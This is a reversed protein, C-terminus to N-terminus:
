KALRDLSQLIRSTTQGPTGSGNIETLLDRQRYYDIVPLTKSRYEKLRIELALATDDSRKGRDQNERAIQWREVIIEDSLELFIVAKLPHGSADAAAVVGDEEGHWRGVSSLILPKERFAAQSLYPLVIELYDAQPILAGANMYKKVHEPIVSNRLIDGGGLLQAGFLKALQRGQTDKGAFPSGFLNISGTGLWQKIRSIQSPDVESM